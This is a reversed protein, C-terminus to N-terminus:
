LGSSDYERIRYLGTDRWINLGIVMRGPLFVPDGVSAGTVPVFGETLFITKNATFRTNGRTRFEVSRLEQQGSDNLPFPVDTLTGTDSGTSWLNVAAQPEFVPDFIVNQPLFTWGKIYEDGSFVSYARLAKPASEETYTLLEDPFVVFASQRQTIAWQRALSVTTRLEQVAANIGASRGIGQFAPIAFALLLGMLGVVVMLEILTFGSRHNSSNQTASQM